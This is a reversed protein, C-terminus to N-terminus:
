KTVKADKLIWGSASVVLGCGTCRNTPDQVKIDRGCLCKCHMPASVGVPYSDDRRLALKTFGARITPDAFPVHVMM